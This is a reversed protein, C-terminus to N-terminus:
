AGDGNMQGDFLDWEQPVCIELLFDHRYVSRDLYYSEDHHDATHREPDPDGVIEVVEVMRNMAM